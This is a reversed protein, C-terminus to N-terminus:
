KNQKLQLQQVARSEGEKIQMNTAGGKRAAEAVMAPDAGALIASYVVKHAQGPICAAVAAQTIAAAQEPVAKIVAAAITDSMGLNATVANRIITDTQTPNIVIQDTVKKIILQQQELLFQDIVQQGQLNGQLIIQKQLQQGKDDQPPQHQAGQMGPSSGHQQAWINLPISFIMVIVVLLIYLVLKKNNMFVVKIYQENLCIFESYKKWKKAFSQANIDVPIETICPVVKLAPNYLPYL